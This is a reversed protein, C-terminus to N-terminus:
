STHIYSFYATYSGRDCHSGNKNDIKQVLNGSLSLKTRKFVHPLFLEKNAFTKYSMGIKKCTFSVVKSPFM